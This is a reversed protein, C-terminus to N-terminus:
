EGVYRNINLYGWDQCYIFARTMLVFICMKNQVRYYYDSRQTVCALM